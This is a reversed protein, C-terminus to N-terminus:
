KFNLYAFKGFLEKAKEDYAKAAEIECNYYGLFLGIGNHHISSIMKGKEKDYTVGKYKTTSDIRLRSNQVNEQNTCVRLNIIRNDLTDHNIHDVVMGEPCKTIFRHLYTKLKRSTVYGNTCLTWNYLRVTNFDENSVKTFMGNNLPILKHEKPQNFDWNRSKYNNKIRKTSQSILGCKPCGKPNTKHTHNSPSQYFDGHTNCTIIVKDHGKAYVVKDYNYKDGHILIANNIFKLQREHISDSNKIKNKMGM